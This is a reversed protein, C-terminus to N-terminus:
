SEPHEPGFMRRLNEKLKKKYIILDILGFKPNTKKQNKKQSKGKNPNQNKKKPIKEVGGKLIRHSKGNNPNQNKKPTKERGGKRWAPWVRSVFPARSCSM